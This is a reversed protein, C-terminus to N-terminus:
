DLVSLQGVIEPFLKRLNAENPRIEREYRLVLDDQRLTRRGVAEKLAATIEQQEAPALKPWVAAYQAEQREKLIRQRESELQKIEKELPSNLSKSEARMSPSAVELTRTKWSM